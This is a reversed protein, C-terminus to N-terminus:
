RLLSSLDQYPTVCPRGSAHLLRSGTPDAWVLSLLTSSVTGHADAHLCIARGGEHSKLAPAVDELAHPPATRLMTHALEVRADFPDDADVHTIVHWGPRLEERRLTEGDWYACAGGREDAAFLTFPAYRCTLVEDAVWDLAHQADDMRLADLCLLGRSRDPEKGTAWRAGTGGESEPSMRNLLAAVFRGHQVGLWTGGALSDRGAVIRPERVLVHPSLAPRNLAEDRNAGLFLIGPRPRDIGVLLTCM